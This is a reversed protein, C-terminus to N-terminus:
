QQAEEEEEEEMIKNKKKKKKHIREAMTLPQVPRIAKWLRVFLSRHLPVYVITLIFAFSIGGTSIWQETKKKILMWWLSYSMFFCVLAQWQLAYASIVAYFTGGIFVIAFVMSINEVVPLIKSLTSRIPEMTAAGLVFILTWVLVLLANWFARSKLTQYIGKKEGGEGEKM